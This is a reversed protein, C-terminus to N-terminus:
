LSYGRIINIWFLSKKMDKPTGWQCFHTVNVPCWVKLGDKVLYNFPLSAYYEGKINDNADIMQQCYKKMIAGTKFYYIGPSHRARKKDKEWSFKEKIEILNEKADVKCSAYFNKLPILHPHFGSYCPVAGDCDHQKALKKFEEYDWHMYYDCYSILVPQNDDIMECALLVDNVPGKKEWNKIAFIRANPAIRKLEPKIYDLDDLHEQRCIFIINNEDGPFMKVIWEVMSKGCVEIFPKLKKYGVSKFRSGYGTMPIIIQM